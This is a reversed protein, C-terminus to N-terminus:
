LPPLHGPARPRARGPADPDVQRGVGRQTRAYAPSVAPERGFRFIAPGAIMRIALLLSVMTLAAAAGLSVYGSGFASWGGATLSLLALGFIWARIGTVAM